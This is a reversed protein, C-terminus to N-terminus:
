QLVLLHHDIVLPSWYIAEEPLAVDAELDYLSDAKIVPYGHVDDSLTVLLDIVKVLMMMRMLVYM